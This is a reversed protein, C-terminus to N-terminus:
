GGNRNCEYEHEYKPSNYDRAIKIHMKCNFEILPMSSCQIYCAEYIDFSEPIMKHPTHLFTALVSGTIRAANSSSALLAPTGHQAM